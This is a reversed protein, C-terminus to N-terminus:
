PLPQRDYGGPDQRRVWRRTPGPGRRPPPYTRSRSWRHLSEPIRYGSTSLPCGVREDVSYRADILPELDVLRNSPAELLLVVLNVDMLDQQHPIGQDMTVLADFEGQAAETLGENEKEAWGRQRVTIAEMEPSFLGALRRPLNEDLLLRM